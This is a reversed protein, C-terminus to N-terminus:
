QKRDKKRRSSVVDAARRQRVYVTITSTRGAEDIGYGTPEYFVRDDRNSAEPWREVYLKAPLPRSM